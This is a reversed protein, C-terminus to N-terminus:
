GPQRVLRRLLAPRAAQNKVGELSELEGASNELDDGAAEDTEASRWRRRNQAWRERRSESRSLEKFTRGLPGTVLAPYYVLDGVLAAALLVLMLVGFRQTPTFTSFAFVALGLGAVLTTQTMARACREYAWRAAQRRSLGASLGQRFWTLYHLTDDVAVGMAVSATMMTGVDVLIGLWGMSGFIVVAPFVNPIMAVMGAGVNGLLIMMVIAILVFAMVLSQFLSRMLEHQVQYVLPVLGTYVAELGLVGQARYEDLVPEVTAKLDEVFKGYDLDSLAEVRASVRWLETGSTAELGRVAAVVSRAQEATLQVKQTLLLVDVPDGCMRKLGALDRIGLGILRELLPAPLALSALPADLDTVWYDRLEPRHADLRKSLVDDRVRRRNLGMLREFASARSTDPQLDPAFTAASLAGGVPPLSEVAEEVRQVLRMRDVVSLKCQRNDMKLIVEMPVLPGLHKELWTYDHIIPADPAFFKMLKVSTHIRFLGLAAVVMVLSCVIAVTTRYHVIKAGFWHWWHDIWTAGDRTHGRGGYRMAFKRSPFLSLLAPLVLLVLVLTAMVGLASYLGFKSIPVVHSLFLSGLGLATTFAALSCPIFGLRVAREPAGELGGERIGDHYYNVLHIGASIALVYVLSPMSMMIADVTQGTFYVLALGVGAAIISLSFVIVTLRFSRLCFISVALGVVASLAALRLLTREGELDIALNDIPPGGLRLTRPDQARRGTIIERFLEAMYNWAKVWIPPPATEPKPPEIGCERAVRHLLAVLERLQHGHLEAQLSAVLCTTRHDPGILTGELRRLIEEDSLSPYRKRFQAVLRQGTLVSKFFPHKSASSQGPRALAGGGQATRDRMETTRPHNEPLSGAGPAPAAHADQAPGAYEMLKQAMLELRPDDLTCGEWSVLVFQEHPFHERFWRHDATQALHSPLWDRVDNKNSRLARRTGMWVLPLLAVAVLVIVLSYRAFFGKSYNLENPTKMDYIVKGKGPANGGTM